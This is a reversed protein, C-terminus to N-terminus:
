SDDVNPADQEPDVHDAAPGYVMVDARGTHPVMCALAAAHLLWAAIERDTVADPLEIVIGRKPHDTAVRWTEPIRADSANLRDKARGALGHQLGLMAPKPRSDSEAPTFTAMPVVPGRKSFVALFSPTDPVPTDDSIEPLVNIWGGVSRVLEVLASVRAM